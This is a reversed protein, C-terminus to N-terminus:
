GLGYPRSPVPVALSLPRAMLSYRTGPQQIPTVPSMPCAVALVAAQGPLCGLRPRGPPCQSPTASEVVPRGALPGATGCRRAPSRQRLLMPMLAPAEAASSMPVQPRSISTLAVQATLVGPIVLQQLSRSAWQQPTRARKTWPPALRPLGPMRAKAGASASRLRRQLPMRLRALRMLSVLMLIPLSTCSSRRKRHSPASWEIDLLVEGDAGQPDKGPVNMARDVGVASVPPSVLGLGKFYTDLDSQAFGGGLEVIAVTQGTGDTGPPMAYIDALQTPTYSQKAAAATAVRLRMEAQPRDDLGLVATILGDLKAPLSLGGSRQRVLRSDNTSGLRTMSMTTGFLQEMATVSAAIRMRRSPADISLIKVGAATLIDRAQKVDAPAAGYQEGLEKSTLPTDGTRPPPPEARRRLVVTAEVPDERGAPTDSAQALVTRESGPLLTRSDDM